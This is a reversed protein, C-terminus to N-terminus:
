AVEDRRRRAWGSSAERKREEELARYDEASTRIAAKVVAKAIDTALERTMDQGHETEFGFQRIFPVIDRHVRAFRSVFQWALWYVIQAGNDHRYKRLARMEMQAHGCLWLFEVEFSMDPPPWAKGEVIDTRFQTMVHM